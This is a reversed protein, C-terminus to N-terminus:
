LVFECGCVYGSVDQGFIVDRGCEFGGGFCDRALFEVGVFDFDYGRGRVLGGSGAHEFAGCAM